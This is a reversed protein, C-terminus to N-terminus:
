GQKREEYSKKREELQRKPSITKNRKEEKIESTQRNIERKKQDVTPLMTKTLNQQRM